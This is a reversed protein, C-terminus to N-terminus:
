ADVVEGLYAARVANNEVVESASGEAIVKGRDLVTIRGCVKLVLSVDHEVLLVTAGWDRGLNVLLTELKVVELPTLGAAPEDLMILKPRSVLAQAIEVVRQEGIALSGVEREAMDEIELYCLVESARMAIDADVTRHRPFGFILRAINYPIQAHLGILLNEYVTFNQVLQVAQFTRRIGLTARTHAPLMTVELDSFVIRGGSPVALGSIANFLTTKGAGNPGILGRIEKHEIALDVGDVATVGDFKVSLQEIKLLPAM